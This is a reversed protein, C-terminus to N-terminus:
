KTVKEKEKEEQRQIEGTGGEVVGDGILVAKITGFFCRLDMTFGKFGNSNLAKTYEGDVNAKIPIELEDRGNIQALGTLGPLIDNAGYKDREEILDFQNWLAPRPGVISMHGVLINFLQPLEDISLKRITQQFKTMHVESVDLQHTAVDKPVSIPMSRFKLLIFEKKHLGIRRQKFFIPGPSDIKILVSVILLPIHLIFIGMLSIIIDFARKIFNKYM